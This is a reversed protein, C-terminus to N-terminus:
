RILALPKDAAYIQRVSESAARASSNDLLAVYARLSNEYTADTGYLKEASAILGTYMATGFDTSVLNAAGYRNGLAFGVTGGALLVLILTLALVLKHNM